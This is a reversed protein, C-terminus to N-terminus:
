GHPDNTGRVLGGLRRRIKVSNRCVKRMGNEGPYGTWNQVKQKFAFCLYFGLPKNRSFKPIGPSPIRLTAYWEGTHRRGGRHLIKCDSTKALM